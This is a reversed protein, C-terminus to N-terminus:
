FSDSLRLAVSLIVAVTLSTTVTLWVRTATPMRSWSPLRPPTNRSSITEPQTEGGASVSDAISEPRMSRPAAVPASARSVRPADGSGSSWQPRGHDSFGGSAEAIDPLVPEATGAGVKLSFAEAGVFRAGVLETPRDGHDSDPSQDSAPSRGHVIRQQALAERTSPGSAWSAAVLDGDLSLSGLLRPVAQAAWLVPGPPPSRLRLEELRAALMGLPPRQEGSWSLCARALDTLTSVAPGRLAAVEAICAAVAGKHHEEGLGEDVVPPTGGLLTVLLAGLGYVVSSPGLERGPGTYGPEGSPAAGERWVQFGVTRVVGTADTLLDDPTPGCHWIGHGGMEAGVSCVAHAASAAQAVASASFGIPLHGGAKVAAALATGLGVGRVYEYAFVPRKKGPAVALSHLRLLNRHDLNVLLMKELGLARSDAVRSSGVLILAEQISDADGDYYVGGRRVGTRWGKVPPGLKMKVRRGVLAGRTSHHRPLM